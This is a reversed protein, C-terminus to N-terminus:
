RAAAARVQANRDRMTVDFGLEEPAHLALLHPRHGRGQGPAAAVGGGNDLLRGASDRRRAPGAPRRGDGVRRRPRPRPLDGHDRAHRRPRNRGGGGAGDPPEVLHRASVAPLLHERRPCLGLRRAPQHRPEPRGSGAGGPHRDRAARRHPLAGPPCAPRDRAAGVDRGPDSLQGPGLPDDPRVIEGLGARALDHAPQEAVHGVAALEAIHRRQAIRHHHGVDRRLHGRALVPSAGPPAQYRM